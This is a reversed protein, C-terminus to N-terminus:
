DPLPEPAAIRADGGASDIRPWRYLAKIREWFEGGLILLSSLFFLEGALAV